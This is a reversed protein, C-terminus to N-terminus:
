QLNHEKAIGDLAALAAADGSFQARADALARRARDEEKLVSRSRILKLWGELNAPDTKLRAELGDVMSRIMEGTEGGGAATASGALAAIEAELTARWSADAPTDALLSRYAALAEDRQGEQALAMALFFRAKPQHPERKVAEGFARRADATVMGESAYVTMEGFDAITEATAPALDLIRGYAHAAERWRAMRKYAPALVQWGKLDSPTDALHREVKAVLAEFNGAEKANALREALPVDALQPSGHRLYIPLAILPVLLVALALWAQGGFSAREEGGGAQLIRRSIENRAAEAEPAAIVGRALDRDLEALQDRYVARDLEARSAAAQGRGYLPALLLALIAGTLVAIAFWLIM